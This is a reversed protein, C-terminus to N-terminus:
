ILKKQTHKNWKYTMVPPTQGSKRWQSAMNRYKKRRENRTAVLKARKNGQARGLFLVLRHAAAALQQEKRGAAALVALPRSDVASTPQRWALSHDVVAIRQAAVEQVAAGVAIRQV